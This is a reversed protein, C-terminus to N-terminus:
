EKQEEDEERQLQELREPRQPVGHEGDIRVLAAGSAVLAERALDFRVPDLLVYLRAERLAGPRVDPAAQLIVDLLAQPSASAFMLAGSQADDVLLDHADRASARHGPADAPLVIRALPYADRHEPDLRFFVDVLYDFWADSAAAGSPPLLPARAHARHQREQTIQIARASSATALAAAWTADSAPRVTVATADVIVDVTGGEAEPDGDAAPVHVELLVSRGDDLARAGSRWHLSSVSRPLAKVYAAPLVDDLAFHAIAAGAGDYVVIVDEGHGLSYWNDLTVARGGPLTVADVPAIANRLPKKWATVWRGDVQQQMIGMASTPTISAAPAAVEQVDDMAGRIPRPEVTLRWQGDASPYERVSPPAWSDALASGGVLLGAFGLFIPTLRVMRM